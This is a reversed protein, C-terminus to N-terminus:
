SNRHSVVYRDIERQDFSSGLVAILDALIILLLLFDHIKM